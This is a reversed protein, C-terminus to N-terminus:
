GGFIPITAYAMDMKLSGGLKSAWSRSLIMGYNVSVDAVVIDMLVSKVPIQALHVVLYKIMGLCRFKRAYTRTIQLCPKEMVIKPILNHSSGLHLM